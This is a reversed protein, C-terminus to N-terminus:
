FNTPSTAYPQQGGTTAIEAKVGRVITVVEEAKVEEDSKEIEVLSVDTLSSPAPVTHMDEDKLSRLALSLTGNNEALRLRQADRISIELSVNNPPGVNGNPDQGSGRLNVALVKAGAVIVEAVRPTNTGTGDNDESLLQPINHTLLVDVKDGPFIYGAVGSIADVQMTVARMGKPLSAALFNSDNPNALKSTVVPERAKFEARSVMGLLNAEPTGQIIFGPVILHQPWPQTDLMTDDIITGIPIDNRAVIIDVTEINTTEEPVVITETPTPLPAPAPQDEMTFQLAAFGAILAVVIVIILIIFRM